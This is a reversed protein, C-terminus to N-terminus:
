EKKGTILAWLSRRPAPLAKLNAMNLAQAQAAITQAQEAMQQWKDRDTTLEEIRQKLFDNELQLATLKSSSENVAEEVPKTFLSSLTELGEPTLEATKGQKLSDLQIGAAKIRQYVAQTSISQKKAFEKITM